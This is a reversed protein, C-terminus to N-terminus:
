QVASRGTNSLRSMFIKFAIRATELTYDDVISELVWHGVYSCQAQTDEEREVNFDVIDAVNVSPPMDFNNTGSAELSSDM